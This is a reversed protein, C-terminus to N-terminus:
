HRGGGLNSAIALEARDQNAKAEKAFRGNPALLLYRRFHHAASVWDRLKDYYILGLRFHANASKVSGDLCREFGSIAGLYDGESQRQEAASETNEKQHQELNDCGSLLLAAALLTMLGSVGM